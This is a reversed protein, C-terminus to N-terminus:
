DNGERDSYVFSGDGAAAVGDKCREDQQYKQQTAPPKNERETERGNAGQLSPSLSVKQAASRSSATEIKQSYPYNERDLPLLLGRLSLLLSISIPYSVLRHCVEECENVLM